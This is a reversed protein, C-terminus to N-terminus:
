EPCGLVDVKWGHYSYLFEGGGERDTLKVRMRFRTGVPYKTTLTKSCEIAIDPGFVQGPAPRMHVKGHRGSMGAPIFSEAVISIYPHDKAMM